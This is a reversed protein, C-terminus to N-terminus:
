GAREAELKMVVYRGNYNCSTGEARTLDSDFTLQSLGFFEHSATAAHHPDAEYGYRLHWRGDPLATLREAFSSSRSNRGGSAGGKTSIMVRLTGDQEAIAMDADWEYLTAGDPALTTGHLAWLGCIDPIATM